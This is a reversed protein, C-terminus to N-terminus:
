QLKLETLDAETITRLQESTPNGVGALREAIRSVANEFVNRVFRGNGFDERRKEYATKFKEELIKEAGETLIYDYKKCFVKFIEMLEKDDYDSFTITTRFRSELGSDCKLFKEMPAGVYGAAIVILNDRKDEMAQVLVGIANRGFDNDGGEALQHAEDIFLVGGEAEDIIEKMRAETEGIYRGVIDARKTEKFKGESVLGLAKGIRGMLRGVTTKGTGPNGSFIMHRSMNVIPLGHAKRDNANKVEGVWRLVQEKVQKMGVYSDLEKLIEEPDERIETVEAKERSKKDKPPVKEAKAPVESKGSSIEEEIEKLREDCFFLRRCYEDRDADYMEALEEYTRAAVEYGHRANEIKGNEAAEKAKDEWIKAKAKLYEANM